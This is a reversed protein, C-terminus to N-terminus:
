NHKRVVRRVARKGKAAPVPRDFKEGIVDGFRDCEHWNWCSEAKVKQPYQGDPHVAISSLPVLCAVFKTAQSNFELTMAACPSFHLGKGCEVKGGDWDAARTETGPTYIAGKPSLYTDGVGKYLVACDGEIKAGYYECWEQLTNPTKVEIQVGGECKGGKHLHVGVM